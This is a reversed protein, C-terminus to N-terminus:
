RRISHDDIAALVVAMACRSQHTMSLSLSAVGRRRALAELAGSLELWDTGGPGRRANVLRWPEPEDSAGLAKFVAEKAAFRAALPRPRGGCDDLEDDTYVRRLYRDGHREIVDQVDSVEVLDIGILVPIQM